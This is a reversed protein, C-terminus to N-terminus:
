KAPRPRKKRPHAGKYADLQLYICSLPPVALLMAVCKKGM